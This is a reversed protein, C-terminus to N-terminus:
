LDSRQFRRLSVFLYAALYIASFILLLSLDPKDLLKRTVNKIFPFPILSDPANLLFYNGPRSTIFKNLLAGIISELITSYLLFVGLALATRKILVGLMLALSCYSLSQIFFYGIYKLGNPTYHTDGLAGVILVSIFVMITSVICTILVLIIKVGIFENRSWGDIINQRHTRYMYENTVFLIVLLAPIFILFSSLWSATQWLDPYGFSTGLAKVIKQREIARQEINWGIINIGVVGALYLISLIWFTRYNRLKMWEIRLLHLM